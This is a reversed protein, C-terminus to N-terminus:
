MLEKGFIAHTTKNRKNQDPRKAGPAIYRRGANKENTRKIKNYRKNANKM